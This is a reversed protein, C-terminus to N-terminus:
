HEIKTAKLKMSKNGKIEDKECSEEVCEGEFTDNFEWPWVKQKKRAPKVGWQSFTYL